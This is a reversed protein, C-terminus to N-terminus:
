EPEALTPLGARAATLEPVLELVGELDQVELHDFYRQSTRPDQHGM